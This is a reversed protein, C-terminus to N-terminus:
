LPYVTSVFPLILCLGLLCIDRLVLAALCFVIFLLFLGPIAVGIAFLKFEFTLEFRGCLATDM